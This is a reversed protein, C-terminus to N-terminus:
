VVRSKIKREPIYDDESLVIDCYNALESEATGDKLKKIFYMATRMYLYNKVHYENIYLSTAKMISDWNYDYEQFFWMFNTEINKKNGRAYKGSPLKQTPFMELYEAIKDVYDSGLLDINKLKVLPKYLMEVEKILSEGKITLSCDPNIYISPLKSQLSAIGVGSLKPKAHLRYLMHYQDVTLEKKKLKNFFASQKLM